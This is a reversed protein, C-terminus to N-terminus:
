NYRLPQTGNVLVCQTQIEAADFAGGWAANKETTGEYLKTSTTNLVVEGFVYLGTIAGNAYASTPAKAGQLRGRNSWYDIGVANVASGPDVLVGLDDTNRGLFREIAFVDRRKM